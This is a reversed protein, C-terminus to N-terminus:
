LDCVSSRSGCDADGPSSSCRMARMIQIRSKRQVVTKTENREEQQSCALDVHRHFLDRCHVHAVSLEGRM